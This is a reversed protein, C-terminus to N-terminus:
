KATYQGRAVKKFTGTERLLTQNVITRFNAATTKYGAQQVAEAAETVSMTVGDLLQALSETLNQDNKPRKRGSPLAASYGNGLLSGLTALETDLNAVQSLLAERKAALKEYQRERRRIERALDATSVANLQGGGRAKKTTKRNSKKAL